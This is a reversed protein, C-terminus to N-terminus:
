PFGNLLDRQFFLWQPATLRIQLDACYWLRVWAKKNSLTKYAFCVKEVLEKPLLVVNSFDVLCSLCLTNSIVSSTGAKLQFFLFSPALLCGEWQQHQKLLTCFSAHFCTCVTHEGTKPMLLARSPPPHDINLFTSYFKNWTNISECVKFYVFGASFHMWLLVFAVYHLTVFYCIM